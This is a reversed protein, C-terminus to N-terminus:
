FGDSLAYIRCPQLLITVTSGREYTSQQINKKCVKITIIIFLRVMKYNGNIWIECVTIPKKKLAM